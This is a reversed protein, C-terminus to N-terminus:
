RVGLRAAARLLAAMKPRQRLAYQGVADTIRNTTGDAVLHVVHWFKASPILFEARRPGALVQTNELHTPQPAHFDAPKEHRGQLRIRFDCKCRLVDALPSRHQVKREGKLSADIVKIAACALHGIPVEKASDGFLSVAADQKVEGVEPDILLVSPGVYGIDHGPEREVAHPFHMKSAALQLASEPNIRM